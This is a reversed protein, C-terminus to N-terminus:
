NSELLTDLSEFFYINVLNISLTSDKTVLYESLVNFFIINNSLYAISANVLLLISVPLSIKFIM